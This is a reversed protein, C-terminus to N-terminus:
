QLVFCSWTCPSQDLVLEKLQHQVGLCGFAFKSQVDHIQQFVGNRSVTESGQRLRMRESESCASNGVSALESSSARTSFLGMALILFDSSVSFSVSLRSSGMCGLFFAVAIHLVARAVGSNLASQSQVIEFSKSPVLFSPTSLIDEFTESLVLFEWSVLFSQALRASM